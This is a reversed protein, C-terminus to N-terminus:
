SVRYVEIRAAGKRGKRRGLLYVILLAAVVGVAALVGINRAGETTEDVVDQIERLKSELDDRTVTM